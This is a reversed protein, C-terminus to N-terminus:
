EPKKDPKQYHYAIDLDIETELDCRIRALKKKEEDFKDGLEKILRENEDRSTKLFNQTKERIERLHGIERFGFYAALAAVITALSVIVAIIGVFARHTEIVERASTVCADSQQGCPLQKLTSTYLSAVLKKILHDDAQQVSEQPPLMQQATSPQSSQPVPQQAAVTMTWYLAAMGILVLRFVRVGIAM